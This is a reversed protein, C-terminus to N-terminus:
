QEHRLVEQAKEKISDIMASSSITAGSITDFQADIDKDKFQSLFEDEVIRSGIGPTEKHELVIVRIINGQPSLSVVAKIDSSYGYADAIFVYAILNGEADKAKYLVLDGEEIKEIVEPSEPLVEEVARKEELKRQEIIRPQTVDFVLALLGGAVICILFLIISFKAIERM